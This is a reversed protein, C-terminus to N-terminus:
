PSNAFVIMGNHQEIIHSNKEVNCKFLAIVLNGLLVILSMIKHGNLLANKNRSNRACLLKICVKANEIDRKLTM